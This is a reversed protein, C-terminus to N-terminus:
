RAYFRYRITWNATKGPSIKLHVYAQPCIASRISWFFITSIPLDGSQEVGGGTM